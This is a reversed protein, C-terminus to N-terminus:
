APFWTPPDGTGLWHPQDADILLERDGTSDGYATLHVADRGEHHQDLWGHLRDVKEPGRCNPGDLRGTYTNSAGIELRTALVDAIGLVEAFPKLYLEFSASVLVVADGNALHGALTRHTDTRMWSAAVMRGFTEATIALDDVLKGSVAAQAALEKLADRDRKVLLPLLRDPRALLKTTVRSTGGVKRLFPVVCDRRTLTGDVDFAAVRPKESGGAATV